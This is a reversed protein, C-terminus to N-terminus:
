SSWRTSEHLAQERVFRERRFLANLVGPETM